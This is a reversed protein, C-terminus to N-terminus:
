AGLLPPEAPYLDSAAKLVNDLHGDIEPMVHKRDMEVAM